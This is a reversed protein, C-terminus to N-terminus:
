YAREFNGNENIPGCVTLHCDPMEAFADLVLDLGQSRSRRKGFSLYRNRCAEFNKEEPWPYLVPTSIPIRHIPKNAYSFPVSTFENGLITACDAYEIAL